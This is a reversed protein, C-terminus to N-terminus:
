GFFDLVGIIQPAGESIARIEEHISDEVDAYSLRFPTQNPSLSIGVGVAAPGAFNLWIRATSPTSIIISKRRPNWPVLLTDGAGVTVNRPDRLTPM